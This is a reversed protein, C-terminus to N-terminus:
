VFVAAWNLARDALAVQIFITGFRVRWVDERPDEEQM